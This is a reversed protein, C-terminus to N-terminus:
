RLGGPILKLHSSQKETPSSRLYCRQLLLDAEIGIEFIQQADDKDLIKGKPAIVEETVPNLIDKVVLMGIISMCKDAETDSLLTRLTLHIRMVTGGGFERMKDQIHNSFYLKNFKAEGNPGFEKLAEKRALELRQEDNTCKCIADMFNNNWWVCHRAILNFDDENKKLIHVVNAQLKFKSVRM